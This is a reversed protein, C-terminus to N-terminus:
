NDTTALRHQSDCLWLEWLELDKTRDYVLGQPLTELELRRGQFVPPICAMGAPLMDASISNPCVCSMFHDYASAKCDLDELTFNYRKELAVFLRANSNRSRKLLQSACAVFADTINDDYVVDAAIIIDLEAIAELDQRQWAFPGDRPFLTAFEQIDETGNSFRHWNLKRVEVPSPGYEAVSVNRRINTAALELVSDPLDTAFVRSCVKSSVISALAVGCGLEVVVSRTFLDHRYMIFDVLLCSGLWVQEGVRQLPTNLSHDICIFLRGERRKVVVDGDEDIYSTPTGTDAQGVPVQLVFRTHWAEVRPPCSEMHVESLFTDANAM